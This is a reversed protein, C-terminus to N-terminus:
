PANSLMLHATRRNANYGLNIFYTKYTFSHENKRSKTGFLSEPPRDLLRKNAVKVTFPNFTFTKAFHWSWLRELLFLLWFVL